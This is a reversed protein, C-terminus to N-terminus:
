KECDQEFYSGYASWYAVRELLGGKGGNPDLSILCGERIRGGIRWLPSFNNLM